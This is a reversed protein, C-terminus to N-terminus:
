DWAICSYGWPCKHRKTSAGGVPTSPGGHVMDHLDVRFGMWKQMIAGAFKVQMSVGATCPSVASDNFVGIFYASDYAVNFIVRFPPLVL